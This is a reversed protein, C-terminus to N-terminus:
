AEYADLCPAAHDFPRRSRLLARQAKEARVQRLHQEYHVVHALPAGFFFMLESADMDQAVPATGGRGPRPLAITWAYRGAAPLPTRIPVLDM